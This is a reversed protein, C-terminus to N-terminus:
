LEEKADKSEDKGEAKAKEAAEEAAKREAEAKKEAVAKEEAQKKLITEAQQRAEDESDTVLINDFVTGAKVQWIELGVGAIKPFVGITKDEAFDPNDIKPHVWPGKYKPNDIQKARWEGKYEPNDILPATWKGDLDNDWDEPQKAEPDAIQAPIADWGAPKVDTPDDMKPEDVWDKPKSAAPDNIQKPPLIDWEDTISGKRESNNDVLVEFTQDPRIVFTFVHTFTDSQTPLDKTILHNKGKHTIIAHTRKTGGCIDPGFMIDYPTDGNFKAGEFGAPLLKFYGGGCDINQPHAASFQFVLTKGKNSFEPFAASYQYFRADTATKVGDDAPVLDGAEEGKFASKIWRKEWGPGFSEQFYTTANVAVLLALLAVIIRM